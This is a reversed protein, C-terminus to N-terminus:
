DNEDAEQLADKIAQITSESVTGNGNRAAMDFPIASKPKTTDFNKAKAQTESELTLRANPDAEYAAAAALVDQLPRPARTAAVALSDAFAVEYVAVEHETKPLALGREVALESAIAQLEADSPPIVERKHTKTTKM